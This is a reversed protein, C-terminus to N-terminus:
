AIAKDIEFWAAEPGVASWRDSLAQVVFAGWAGLARRHGRGGNAGLFRLAPGSAELRIAGAHAKVELELPLEVSRSSTGLSQSVLERVLMRARRRSPRDAGELAPGLQELAETLREPQRDLAQGLATTFSDGDLLARRPHPM